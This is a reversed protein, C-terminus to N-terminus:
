VWVVQSWLGPGVVAGGPGKAAQGLAGLSGSSGKLCDAGLLPKWADTWLCLEKGFVCSM